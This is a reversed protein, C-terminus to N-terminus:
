HKQGKFSKETSREYQEIRAFYDNVTKQDDDQKKILLSNM